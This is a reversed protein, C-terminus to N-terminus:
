SKFIETTQQSTLFVKLIWQDKMFNLETIMKKTNLENVNKQIEISVRWHYVMAWKREKVRTESKNIQIWQLRMLNKDIRHKTLLLFTNPVFFFVFSRFFYFLFTVYGLMSNSTYLFSILINHLFMYAGRRFTLLFFRSKWPAYMICPSTDSIWLVIKFSHQSFFYKSQSRSLSIVFVYLTLKHYWIIRQKPLM